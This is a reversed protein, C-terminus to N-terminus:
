TTASGGVMFRTFFDDFLSVQVPIDAKVAVETLSKFQGGDDTVFHDCYPLYVSMMQDNRGAKFSPQKDPRVSRDFLTLELAHVTASMPPCSDILARLGSEDPPSALSANPSVASTSTFAGEYLLRTTNWFSGGSQKSIALWDAFNKPNGSRDAPRQFFQEFDDQLKRLGEAQQQVLSEDTVLDDRQISAEIDYARASVERWNYLKADEHFAKIHKDILYHPPLLCVGPDLFRRCLRHLKLRIEQRQTAFVEEYSMDPLVFNYGLRIAIISPEPLTDKVLRNLGSTDMGLTQLNM